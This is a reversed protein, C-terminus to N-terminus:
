DKEVQWKGPAKNRMSKGGGWGVVSFSRTPNRILYGV